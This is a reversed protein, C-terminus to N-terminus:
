HAGAGVPEQRQLAKPSRSLTDMLLSAPSLPKTSQQNTPAGYKGTAKLKICIFHHVWVYSETAPPHWLTGSQPSTQPALPLSVCTGTRANARLGGQSSIYPLQFQGDFGLPNARQNQYPSGPHSQISLDKKKPTPLAQKNRNYVCFVSTDHM